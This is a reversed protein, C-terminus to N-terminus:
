SCRQLGEGGWRLDCFITFALSKGESKQLFIVAQRLQAAHRLSPPQLPSPASVFSCCRTQHSFNVPIPRLYSSKSPLGKPAGRQELLSPCHINSPGWAMFCHSSGEMGTTGGPLARQQLAAFKSRQHTRLVCRLLSFTNLTSLVFPLSTAECSPKTQRMAACSPWLHPKQSVMPIPVSPSPLRRM